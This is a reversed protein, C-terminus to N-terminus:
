GGNDYEALDSGLECAEGSCGCREEHRLVIFELKRAQYIVGKFDEYRLPGYDLLRDLRELNKSSNPSM